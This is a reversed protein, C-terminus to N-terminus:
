LWGWPKLLERVEHCDGRTCDAFDGSANENWHSHMRHSQTGRQLIHDLLPTVWVLLAPDPKEEM